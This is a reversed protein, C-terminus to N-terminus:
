VKWKLSGYSAWYRVLVLATVDMIM